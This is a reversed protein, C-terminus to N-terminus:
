VGIRESNGSACAACQASASGACQVLHTLPQSVYSLDHTCGPLLGLRWWTVVNVVRMTGDGVVHVLAVCGAAASSVRRIHAHAALCSAFAITSVTVVDRDASVYPPGVQVPLRYQCRTTSVPEQRGASCASCVVAVHCPM